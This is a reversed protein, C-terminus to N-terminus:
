IPQRAWFSAARHIRVNRRCYPQSWAIIETLL